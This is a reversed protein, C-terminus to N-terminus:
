GVRYEHAEYAFVTMSIHIRDIAFASPNWRPAAIKPRRIIIKGGMIRGFHIRGILIPLIMYPLIM